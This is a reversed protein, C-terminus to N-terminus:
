AELFGTTGDIKRHYKTHSKSKRHTKGQIPSNRSSRPAPCIKPKWIRTRAAPAPECRDGDKNHCRSCEEYQCTQNCHMFCRGHALHCGFPLGSASGDPHIVPSQAPHPIDAAHVPLFGAASAGASFASYSSLYPHFVNSKIAIPEAM